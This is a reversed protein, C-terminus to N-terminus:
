SRLSKRWDWDWDVFVEVLLGGRRGEWGTQARMSCSRWVESVREVGAGGVVLMEVAVAVRRRM